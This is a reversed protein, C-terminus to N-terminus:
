RAAARIHRWVMVTLVLGFAAGIITVMDAKADTFDQQIGSPLISAAQAAVSMLAVATVACLAKVKKFM